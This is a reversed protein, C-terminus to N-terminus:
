YTPWWRVHLGRRQRAEKLSVDPYTGLSIRM